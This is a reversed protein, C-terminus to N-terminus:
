ALGDAEFDVALRAAAQEARAALAAGAVGFPLTMLPTRGLRDTLAAVNEEIHTMQPDIANAIWGALPLRAAAIAAATLLAHNLAGVRLGVVLIVPLGLAIALDSLESDAGLPVKWGGAGEVVLWDNEVAISEALAVIRPLEIAVGAERAAIHPAIAPAFCYPNLRAYAQATVVPDGSEGAAIVGSAIGLTLADDNRLGDASSHSGSAVPKLVGVRRQQARLARVLAAAVFTKGVGTDTGTVFWGRM